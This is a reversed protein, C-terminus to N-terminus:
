MHIYENSKLLVQIAGLILRLRQTCYMKVVARLLLMVCCKRQRVFTNQEFKVDCKIIKRYLITLKM